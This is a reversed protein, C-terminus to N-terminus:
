RRDVIRRGRHGVARTSARLPWRRPRARERATLADVVIWGTKGDILTINSIDFGRLQHVGDRVKYLGVGKNLTAHRWLSPNVTAPPKGDVFKYADFDILM